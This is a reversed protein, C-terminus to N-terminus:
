GPQKKTTTRAESRQSIMVAESSTPLLVRATTGTEGSDIMIDGGCDRLRERVRLLPPQDSSSAFYNELAGPRLESTRRRGNDWVELVVVDEEEFARVEINGGGFESVRVAHAADEILASLVVAVTAPAIAVRCEGEVHASLTAAPAVEPHMVDVVDRVLQAISINSTTPAASLRTLASALLASRELAARVSAAIERLRGSPAIALRRVALDRVEELPTGRVSWEVFKDDIDLIISFASDLMEYALSASLLPQEIRRGFAALLAGLANDGRLNERQREYSTRAQARAGAREVTAVLAEETIEGARIVEDVGMGLARTAEQQTRAVCVVGGQALAAFVHPALAQSKTEVLCAHHARAVHNLVAAEADTVEIWFVTILTPPM